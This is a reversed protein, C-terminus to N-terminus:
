VMKVSFGSKQKRHWNNQSGILEQSHTGSNLKDLKNKFYNVSPSPGGQSNSMFRCTFKPAYQM